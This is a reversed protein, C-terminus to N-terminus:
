ETLFCESDSGVLKSIADVAVFDTQNGFGFFEPIDFAHAAGLVPEPGVRMYGSQFTLSKCPYFSILILERYSYAPQTKSAIGLFFRRPAQFNMDGLLAAFRKFQPRFFFNCSHTM